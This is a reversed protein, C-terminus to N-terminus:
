VLFRSRLTDAIHQFSPIAGVYVLARLEQEDIPPELTRLLQRLETRVIEEDTLKNRLQYIDYIDRVLRRNKYASIKELVLIEPSLTFIDMFTGDILEYSKVVHDKAKRLGIEMRIEVIGDSVKAFITNETKKYKNLVLSRSKLAETFVEKLNEAEEPQLIFDLDESFRSGGYCRWVATGGHLVIEPAISYMLKLIEDQLAATAIHERKRLIKSLPLKM